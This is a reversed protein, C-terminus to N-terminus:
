ILYVLSNHILAALPSIPPSGHFIKSFKPAVITSPEHHPSPLFATPSIRGLFHVKINHCSWAIFPPPLYFTKMCELPVTFAKWMNMSFCSIKGDRFMEVEGGAMITSLGVIFM